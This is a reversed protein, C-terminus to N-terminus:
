SHTDPVQGPHNEFGLPSLSRQSVSSGTPRLGENRSILDKTDGVWSKGMAVREGWKKWDIKKGRNEGLQLPDDEQGATASIGNSPPPTVKRSNKKRRDPGVPLGAAIRKSILEM